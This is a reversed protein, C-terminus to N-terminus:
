HRRVRVNVRRSQITRRTKSTGGGLLGLDALVALVVIVLGLGHISGNGHHWAWAYALTTMPAFFFGLVPWLINQYAQHLYQSFIAVLVIAVRPALLALCGILCPM